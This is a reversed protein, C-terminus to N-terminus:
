RIKFTVIHEIRDDRLPLVSGPIEQNDLTLVTAAPSSADLRVITLHYTTQRYRYHVKYSNLSEQRHPVHTRRFLPRPL